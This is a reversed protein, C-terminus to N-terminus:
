YSLHHAPSIKEPLARPSPGTGPQIPGDDNAANGNRNEKGTVPTILEGVYRKLHRAQAYMEESASASKEANATNRQVVTTIPIQNKFPLPPYFIVAETMGPSISVTM